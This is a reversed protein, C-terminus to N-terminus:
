LRTRVRMASDAFPSTIGSVVFKREMGASHSQALPTNLACNGDAAVGCEGCYAGSSGAGPSRTPVTRWSASGFFRFVTRGCIGADARKVIPSSTSRPSTAVALRLADGPEDSGFHVSAAPRVAVEEDERALSLVQNGVNLRELRQLDRHFDAAGAREALRPLDLRERQQQPRQAIRLVAHREDAHQTAREEADAIPLQKRELLSAAPEAHETLRPLGPGRLCSPALPTRAPTTAGTDGSSARAEEAAASSRM